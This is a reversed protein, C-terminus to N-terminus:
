LGTPNDFFDWPTGFKEELHAALAKVGFTETAYHGGYIVNIGWEEADFHTHHTGEGTVFTDIGADRVQNIMSGAGGTVVAIRKVDKPGGPIVHPDEGLIEAVRSVLDERSVTLTGALGITVGHHDGFPHCEGIELAKSLLANNGVEPHCDLPIHASYLAIDHELLKKLRRWHRGTVPQVDGWFLGHHVVLLDAGSEAAADISAQCADVAAALRTVKGSNQVQLGNFAGPGDPIEDVALFENLYGTLDELSVAM